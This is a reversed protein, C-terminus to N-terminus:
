PQGGQVQSSADNRSELHVAICQFTFGADKWLRFELPGPLGAPTKAARIEFPITLTNRGGKLRCRQRALVDNEAAVVELEVDGGDGDPDARCELAFVYRGPILKYYPGYFVRGSPALATITGDTERWGASELKLSRLWSAVNPAAQTVVQATNVVDLTVAEVAVAAAGNTALRFEFQRSRLLEGQGAPVTFQQDFGGDTATTLTLDKRALLVDSYIAEFVLHLAEGAPHESRFKCHVTHRGPELALYPGYLVVGDPGPKAVVLGSPQRTAVVGTTMTALLNGMRYRQPREAQLRRAAANQALREEVTDIIKRHSAIWQSIQAFDRTEGVANLALISAVDSPCTIEEFATRLFKPPAFDAQRASRLLPPPVIADLVAQLGHWLCARGRREDRSLRRRRAEQSSAIEDRAALIDLAGSIIRERYRDVEEPGPNRGLIDLYLIRIQDILPLFLFAEFGGYAFPKAHRGAAAMIEEVTRAPKDPAGNPAPYLVAGSEFVTVTLEQRNVKDPIDAAFHCQWTKGNDATRRGTPVVLALRKASYVGVMPRFLPDHPWHFAGELSQGALHVFSGDPKAPESKARSLLLSRPM